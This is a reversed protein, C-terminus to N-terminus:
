SRAEQLVTQEKAKKGHTDEQLTARLHEYLVWGEVSAALLRGGIVVIGVAWSGFWFGPLFKRSRCACTPSEAPIQGSSPPSCPRSLQATHNGGIALKLVRYTLALFYLASWLWLPLGFLGAM